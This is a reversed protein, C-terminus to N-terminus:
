VRVKTLPYWALLQSQVVLRCPNHELSEVPVTRSAPLEKQKEWQQGFQNPLVATQDENPRPKTRLAADRASQPIECCAGRSRKTRQHQLDQHQRAPFAGTCWQCIFLFLLGEHGRAQIASWFAFSLSSTITKWFAARVIRILRSTDKLIRKWCNKSGLGLVLTQQKTFSKGSEM